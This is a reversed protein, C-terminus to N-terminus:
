SGFGKKKEQTRFALFNTGEHLFGEGGGKPRDRPDEKGRCLFSGRCSIAFFPGSKKNKEVGLRLL